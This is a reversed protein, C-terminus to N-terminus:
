RRSDRRRPCTRDLLAAGDCVLVERAGSPLQRGPQSSVERRHRRPLIAEDEAIDKREGAGMPSVPGRPAWGGVGTRLVLVRAAGACRRCREAFGRRACIAWRTTVSTPRLHHRRAVLRDFVDQDCKYTRRREGATTRVVLLSRWRAVLQCHRIVPFVRWPIRSYAPPTTRAPGAAAGPRLCVSV